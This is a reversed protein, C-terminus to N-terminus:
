YIEDLYADFGEGWDVLIVNAWEFSDSQVQKFKNINKMAM